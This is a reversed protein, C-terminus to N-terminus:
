EDLINEYDDPLLRIGLAVYNTSFVVWGYSRTDPHWSGKRALEITAESDVTDIDGSLIFSLDMTWAIEMCGVSWVRCPRCYLQYGENGCGEVHTQVPSGCLSVCNDM